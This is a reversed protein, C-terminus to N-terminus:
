KKNSSEDEKEDRRARPKARGGCFPLSLSYFHPPIFIYVAKLHSSWVFSITVNFVRSHLVVQPRSFFAIPSGTDIYPVHATHVTISLTSGSKLQHFPMIVARSVDSVGGEVVVMKCCWQLICGRSKQLKRAWWHIYLLTGEQRVFIVCPEKAPGWGIRKERM